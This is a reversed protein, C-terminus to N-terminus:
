LKSAGACIIPLDAEPLGYVASKDNVCIVMDDNGSRSSLWTPRVRSTREEVQGDIM